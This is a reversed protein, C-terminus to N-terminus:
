MTVRNRYVLDDRTTFGIHEWFGNGEPNDGCVVLASKQIGARRLERLARRVLDTGVGRHRYPAGVAVHYLYGRRGDNGAMVTGVVADESEAVFCTKPNRELFGEIGTRSDEVSRLSVGDCTVWLALARDYDEPRMRRISVNGTM